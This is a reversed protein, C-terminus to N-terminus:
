HCFDAVKNRLLDWIKPLSRPIKQYYSGIKSDKISPIVRSLFRVAKPGPNRLAHSGDSIFLFSGALALRFLSKISRKKKRM